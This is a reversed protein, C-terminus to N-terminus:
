ALKAKLHDALRLTLAVITLTPNSFGVTPFVSSSAVYLNDVGHVRLDADVVGQQADDAMRTTGMLHFGITPIELRTEYTDDLDIRMRGAGARGLEGAVLELTRQISADIEPARHYQLELRRQGLADHEDGLVVRSAADPKPEAHVLVDLAHSAGGAVGTRLAGVADASVSTRDDAYKAVGDDDADFTVMCGLLQERRMADPTLTVVARGNAIVGGMYGRPLDRVELTGVSGEIHDMFYRGVLDHDNGLGAPRTSSSLLLLRPVELGGVAVVVHQASVTFRNGDLTAVPVSTVHAAADDTRLELANAGLVVTVNQAARLEPLYRTGFRTPPSFRFMAGTAVDTDLLVPYGWKPLQTRWYSWDWEWGAPDTPLEVVVDARAYYPALDDATLPWGVDTVWPRHELVWPDMPRCWGGWHNTTGGFYRLRTLDVPYEDGSTTAHALAATHDDYALGGSELVITSARTAALERALTIGAAGAGIVLVDAHLTADRQVDSAQLLV